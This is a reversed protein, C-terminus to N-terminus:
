LVSVAREDKESKKEILLKRSNAFRILMIVAGITGIITFLLLYGRITM